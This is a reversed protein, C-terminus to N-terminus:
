IHSFLDRNKHPVVVIGSRDVFFRRSDSLPDFGLSEDEGIINGHDIIAKQVRARARIVVNGLIVSDRVEADEGIVVNNGLVSNKVYGGTLVVSGGIVSNEICGPKGSLSETVILPMGNYKVSRIPWLKRFVNIRVFDQFKKVIRQLKDGTEKDISYYLLIEM